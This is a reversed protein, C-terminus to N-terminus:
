ALRRLSIPWRLDGAGLHSQIGVQALVEARNVTREFARDEIRRELVLGIVTGLCIIVALGVTCFRALLSTWM